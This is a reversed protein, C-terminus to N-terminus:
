FRSPGSKRRSTRNTEQRPKGRLPSSGGEFHFGERKENRGPGRCEGEKQSRPQEDEARFILAQLAVQLLELLFDLGLLAHKALLLLLKLDLLLLDVLGGRDVRLDAGLQKAVHGDGRQLVVLDLFDEGAVAVVDLLLLILGLVALFGFSRSGAT